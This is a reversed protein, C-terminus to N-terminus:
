PNGGVNKNGADSIVYGEIFLDSTIRNGAWSRVEQFTVETGFLNQANAQLLYLTSVLKSGWGDLYSLRIQVSRLNEMDTNPQVSFTFREQGEDYAFDDNVWNGEEGIPYVVEIDAQDMPINTQLTSTVTGGDGLVTTNLVPFLLQPTKTGQQKVYVTDLDSSCVDSS